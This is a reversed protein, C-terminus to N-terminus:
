PALGSPGPLQGFLSIFLAADNSDVVGNGNMDEDPDVVSGFTSVFIAADNSDVIGNNNFDADCINGFGDGNTDRQDPNAVLICNDGVDPFTDTDADSGIRIDDVFWGHSNDPGSVGSSDAASHSFGFRVTAGAYATVDFGFGQWGSTNTVPDGVPVWPGWGTGSDYVSVELQGSDQTSYSVWGNFSLAVTTASPVDLTASVLRSDTNPDYVGALNTGACGSGTACASPGATPSGIGWVGRDAGWDVWGAEFDGTFQPTGSVITVDDIFWGHWNDVGSVGSSDNASHNFGIRVTQGAYSTLDVDKITWDSAGGEVTRGVDEWDGWNSTNSDYVSVQVQGLDSTFYAFWSAFRLHVEEGPSVGPLTTTASILRSDANRDYNADLHTGACGSGTACATPGATPEGVQWVGRDAGWDVWGAEFDGTFTPTGSVITVDDIFWGHSNDAGSVGSSDNASHNFGIRVTQGAYSTLDVDKITWDSSVAGGALSRGVDEWAGWTSTNSDYVQVQAQGSDDTNYAFWSAFRLHVEEGPNVGPLTTTASILRSDTNRDYFDDLHTGACSAGTACATPGATPTGVQWVGRDAGWDVWGAEFDGTFTPAGSEVIVNDIFWGWWNDLGSVGSSNLANHSFSICIKEGAYDTLDVDKISWGASAGGAQSRGVDDSATPASCDTASSDLVLVQVQGSDSTSYAFWNDFRLHIEEGASLSPLTMVPSTLVGDANADYFGTLGTGACTPSGDGCGGPLDPAPDPIGVQWVLGVGTWGLGPIIGGFDEEFVVAASASVPLSFGVGLVISLLVTRVSRATSSSREHNMLGYM